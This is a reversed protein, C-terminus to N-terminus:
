CPDISQGSRLTNVRFVRGETGIARRIPCVTSTDFINGIVRVGRVRSGPRGGRVVSGIVIPQKTGVSFVNDLISADDDEVIVGQDVGEFRNGSVVIREAYDRYYRKAWLWFGEEYELPDGCDFGALDRSQRAAIWVGVPEAVFGNREIRNDSSHMRRPIQDPDDHHEWCNKYLFVGGGGNREFRNSRILNHASSDVAIAERLASGRRPRSVREAEDYNSYGNGAFRSDVIEHGSSGSNLYIASNGAGTVSGGRFVVHQAYRNVFLGSKLPAILQMREFRIDRPAVARLRAELAGADASERLARQTAESLRLAVEAGDQYNRVTCDRITVNEIPRDNEGNAILFAVDQPLDDAPYAVGVALPTDRTMLGQLVAGNCDLTLQSARVVFRVKRLVCGSRLKLSTRVGVTSGPAPCDALARSSENAGYGAANCLLCSLLLALRPSRSVAPGQLRPLGVRSAVNM